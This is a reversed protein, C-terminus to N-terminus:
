SAIGLTSALIFKVRVVIINQISFGGTKLPPHLAAHQRHHGPHVHRPDHGRGGRVQHGGGPRREGPVPVTPTNIYQWITCNYSFNLKNIHASLGRSLICLQENDLVNYM